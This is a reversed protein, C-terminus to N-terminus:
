RPLAATNNAPTRDVMVHYPDVGVSGPRAPVRLVLTQAGSHLRRKELALPAQAEISEAAGPFVGVTFWADLPVERERGLGDAQVQVATIQLTVEFERGVPRVQASDVQVDYLSITEFLDTLLAQHDAGATARLEDLLDRSTPFPAPKFGFRALYNRLGQNVRGAGAIDQLAFMALAGKNYSVNGQDDTLLLPQEATADRGRSRLYSDLTLRLIRHLWVPDAYEKYAMFTSYQALTENLVQRGQMRAGYAWGGWWQHALEHLTAYDLATWERLDTVFGASESYAVVGPSAQAASRYGPYEVIRFVSLPYAGFERSYYALGKKATDLMTQVNWAHKPDYYVELSVGNWTDRAVAYRASLLPLGPWVPQESAYEFFARGDRRWQRRLVGPAVATQDAATSFVLHFNTRSDIGFQLKDLYAPDGLPPVRMAAPLGHRRRVGPDDLERSEDYGPMPMISTNDVFTGNEVLATDPEGGTFGRTRRTLTWSLTLTQGPALPVAPTFLYFGHAVDRQSLSAGSVSLTRVETKPDLSLVFQRIPRAKNNRLTASGTSELRPEEPYLDVALEIHTFSPADASDYAAYAREYAARAGNRDDSTRYPNLINTNCFIWSGTVLCAALATATAVATARTWRGRAERLRHSVGSATGRRSWLHGLVLLLLALSAWYLLLAHTAALFPGYGNMDSHRAAVPAFGYLPHEFGLPGLSLGATYVATVLFMGSWKGPSLTQIFVGVVALFYFYAGGYIFVGQLYLAPEFRRYGGAAQIGIATLTALLLLVTIVLCLAATKSVVMVWDPYPTAAVMDSLRSEHERHVLAASFYILTLLVFQILTYRFIDLMRSTVPHLPLNNLSSVSGQVDILTSVVTLLGVLLFLPSRLVALVDLRLQSRLAGMAFWRSLRGADEAGPGAVRAQTSEPGPLGRRTRGARTAPREHQLDLRFRWCTLALSLAALGLWVLRNLPLLGRPLRANLEAITWYRSADAIPLGGFPDALLLWHPLDAGTSTNLAVELALVALAVGFTLAVSRSLTAVGFFFASFVMVNPLAILAFSFLYPTWTHAGIRAADLGPLHTGVFIGLTGLAAALVALLAGGCFRGALWELKGVPTTLFLARTRLEEDRTAGSVVFYIAPLMGFVGLVLATRVILFPSNLHILLNDNLNIGIGAVTLVHVVAYAGLLVWTLPTRLHFAVEFRLIELTRRM